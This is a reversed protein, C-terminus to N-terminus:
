AEDADYEALVEVVKDPTLNGYVEDNIMVAPAVGCVGLCSTAELTFKGDTTTEGMKIGLAEEFASIVARAGVIHCPASECIRIIFKGRPQVSYLSYFTAVGYVRSLPIDLARAVQLLEAESLSNDDAQIDHLIQLLAEEKAGNQSVIQM